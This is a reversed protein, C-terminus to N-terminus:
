RSFEALLNFIEAVANSLRQTVTIAHSFLLISATIKKSIACKERIM